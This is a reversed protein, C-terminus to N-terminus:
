AYLTKLVVLRCHVYSYIGLYSITDATYWEVKREDDVRKKRRKKGGGYRSHLITKVIDYREMPVVFVHRSFLISRVFTISHANKLNFYRYTRLEFMNARRKFFTRFDCWDCSHLSRLSLSARRIDCAYFDIIAIRTPIPVVFFVLTKHM